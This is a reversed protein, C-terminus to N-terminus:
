FNFTKHLVRNPTRFNNYKTSYTGIFENDNADYVFLAPLNFERSMYEFANWVKNAPVNYYTKADKMGYFNQSGTINYRRM